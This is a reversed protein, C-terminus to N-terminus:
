RGATVREASFADQREIEGLCFLYFTGEAAFVDIKQESEKFAAIGSSLEFPLHFFVVSPEIIVSGEESSYLLKGVDQFSEPSM